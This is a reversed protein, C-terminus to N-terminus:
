LYRHESGMPLGKVLMQLNVKFRSLEGSMMNGGVKNVLMLSAMFSKCSGVSKLLAPSVSSITVLGSVLSSQSRRVDHKMGVAQAGDV